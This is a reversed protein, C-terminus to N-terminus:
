VQMCEKLSKIWLEAITKHGTATPHVYDLTQYRQGSAALDCLICNEEGAALRIAQNYENFIKIAKDSLALEEYEAKYGFLLTACIVKAKKYNNKIRSLMKRYAGYFSQTSQENDFDIPVGYGRDNTGMYILILDPPYDSGLSSCRIKSCGCEDFNGSVCSGSYSNNVCLAGKLFEIVQMWWTDQVSFLQNEYALDYKYYVAYGYPNYGDYTSISDGM